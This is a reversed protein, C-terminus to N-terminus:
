WLDVTPDAPTRTHRRRYVLIFLGSVTGTILFLLLVITLVFMPLAGLLLVPATLISLVSLLFVGVALVALVRGVTDIEAAPEYGCEPCVTADM